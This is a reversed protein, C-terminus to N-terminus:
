LIYKLLKPFQKYKEGGNSISFHKEGKIIILKGKLKDKLFKGQELSVFPDNDSHILIFKKAKKRIVEWNFPKKFLGTLSKWGLDDVFGAVLIAKDIGVGEPLAGLLGLIATAGSSHGIIISDQNFQWQPLIFKNYREINPWNAKPLDPVWVKYGQKELEEKLWQFWNAESDDGTGHLILINKM